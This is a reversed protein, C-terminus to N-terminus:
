GTGGFHPMECKFLCVLFMILNFMVFVVLSFPGAVFSLPPPLIFGAFILFMIVMNVTVSILIMKKLSVM